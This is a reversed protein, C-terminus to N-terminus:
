EAEKPKLITRSFNKTDCHKKIYQILEEKTLSNVTKLLQKSTYLKHFTIYTRFNKIALDINSMDNKIIEVEQINKAKEFEEDTINGNKMDELISFMEKEITEIDEYDCVTYVGTIMRNFYTQADNGITYVLGLEERIRSYLRSSMGCAFISNFTTMLYSERKTRDIDGFSWIVHSQSINDTYCEKTHLKPRYKFVTKNPVAKKDFSFYKRVLTELQEMSIDGSASVITNEPIYNVDRYKRLDEVTINHVTEVSGLINHGFSTGKFLNDCFHHENVVAYPDDKYMLIEQEIVTKEKELEEEPFTSNLYMDFLIDSMREFDNMKCTIYYLTENFSTYANTEAGSNEILKNLEDYTHTKTGKFFMHELVHSLGLKSLDTENFAGVQVGIAITGLQCKKIHECILTLGNDLVKISRKNM